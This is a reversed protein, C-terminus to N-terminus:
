SGRYEVFGSFEWPRIALVFATGRREHPATRDTDVIDMCERITNEIVRRLQAASRDSVADGHLFFEEGTEDFPAAFFERLLKQHIHRQM